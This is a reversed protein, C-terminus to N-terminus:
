PCGSTRQRRWPPSTARTCSTPAPAPRARAARAPVHRRRGHPGCAGVRAGPHRAQRRRGGQPDPLGVRRLPARGRPRLRHQVDAEPRAPRLALAADPGRPDATRRCRDARRRGVVVDEARRRVRRLARLEQLLRHEAQEPVVDVEYTTVNNVTKADFAIQSVTDRAGAILWSLNGMLWGAVIGHPRASPPLADVWQTCATLAPCARCVGVALRRRAAIKM